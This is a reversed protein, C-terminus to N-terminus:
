CHGLPFNIFNVKEQIDGERTLALPSATHLLSHQKELMKKLDFIGRMCLTSVFDRFFLTCFNTMDFLKAFECNAYISPSPLTIRVMPM